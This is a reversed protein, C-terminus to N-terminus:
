LVNVKWNQKSCGDEFRLGNVGLLSKWRLDKSLDMELLLTTQNTKDNGQKTSVGTNLTLM